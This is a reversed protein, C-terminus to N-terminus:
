HNLYLGKMAVKLKEMLFAMEVKGNFILCKSPNETEFSNVQTACLLSFIWVMDFLHFKKEAKWM